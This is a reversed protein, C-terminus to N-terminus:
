CIAFKLDLLANSSFSDIFKLLRAKVSSACISTIIINKLKVQMIKRAQKKKKDLRNFETRNKKKKKVPFFFRRTHPSFDQETYIIYAWRWPMPPFLDPDSDIPDLYGM